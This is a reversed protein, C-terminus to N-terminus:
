AAVEVTAVSTSPEPIPESFAALTQLHGRFAELINAM